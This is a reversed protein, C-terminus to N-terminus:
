DIVILNKNLQLGFHPLPILVFLFRLLFINLKIFDFNFFFFLIFYYLIIELRIIGSGQAITWYQKAYKQHHNYVNM